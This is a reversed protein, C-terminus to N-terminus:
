RTLRLHSFNKKQLSMTNHRAVDSIASAVYMHPACVRLLRRWTTLWPNQPQSLVGHVSWTLAKTQKGHMSDDQSVCLCPQFTFSLMPLGPGPQSVAHKYGQLLGDGGGGGIGPGGLLRPTVAAPAANAVPTCACTRGGGGSSCPRCRLLPISM